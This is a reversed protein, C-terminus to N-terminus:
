GGISCGEASSLTKYIFKKCVFNRYKIQNYVKLYLFIRMEKRAKCIYLLEYDFSQWINLVFYIHKIDSFYFGSNM